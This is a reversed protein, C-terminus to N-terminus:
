PASFICYRLIVSKTWRSNSPSSFVPSSMCLDFSSMDLNIPTSRFVTMRMIFLHVHMLDHKTLNSEVSYRFATLWLTPASVSANCRSPLSASLRSSLSRCVEHCWCSYRGYRHPLWGLVSQQLTHLLRPIYRIRIKSIRGSASTTPYRDIIHM